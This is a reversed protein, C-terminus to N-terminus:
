TLPNLITKKMILHNDITNIIVFDFNQYLSVAVVNNKNVKLHIERINMLSAQEILYSMMAKGLGNNKKKESVCIGLWVIGEEPDLHGYCVPTENDCILATVIHNGISSLPRKSFYTFFKLSEGANAIFEKLLQLNYNNNDIEIINM